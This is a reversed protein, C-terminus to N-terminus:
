GPRLTDLVRKRIAASDWVGTRAVELIRKAVVHTLPDDRDTLKLDALLNEYAQCMAEVTEPEFAMDRLLRYIAM